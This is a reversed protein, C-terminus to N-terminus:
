RAESNETHLEYRGEVLTEFDELVCYYVYHASLVCHYVYHPSM